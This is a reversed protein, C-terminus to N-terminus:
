SFKLWKKAQFVSLKQNLLILTKKLQFLIKERAFQFFKNQKSFQDIKCLYLFSINRM